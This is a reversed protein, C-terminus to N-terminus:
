VIVLDDRHIVHSRGDPLESTRRGVAATVTGASMSSIGRGFEEGTGDVIRVVHGTEFAGEVRVVGAPLLSNPRDTLARRAGDDVVISGAIDAAFAIWLKRASLTRTHPEFTTGVLENQASGALVGPRSARAIVSRIGSWSAMRASTLKSAMGGSGRGSGGADASISLLPDDSRVFPILTATSDRRPDATFVGDMDTLLVLVDAGVSNAILAAIRDNDGYRLEDNAIADNENVVPVVGLELLRKMTQRLHLYQERYVFDFPDVLLQAGVLGHRAFEVNYAEVLRSQGVASVAQITAMDAPRSPMGLAAVGAAVAGSSVIVVEDGRGRLTAVEDALRSIAAVDIAGNDDTISATGIKAVIRM